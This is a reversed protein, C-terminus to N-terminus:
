NYENMESRSITEKVNDNCQKLKVTKQSFYVAVPVQRM